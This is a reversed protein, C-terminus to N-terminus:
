PGLPLASLTAAAEVVAKVFPEEGRAEVVDPAVAVGVAGLLEGTPAHVPAAFSFIDGNERRNVSYGQRRIVALETRLERLTTITAPTFRKLDGAEVPLRKLALFLKGFASAHPVLRVGLGLSHAPARGRFRDQMVILPAGQHLVALYAPSRTAESLTRLVPGGHLRLPMREALPGALALLRFDSRYKRTDASQAVYGAEVLTRLLRHVHSKPLGLTVALDSVALEGRANACTELLRLGNVLTHNAAPVPRPRNM